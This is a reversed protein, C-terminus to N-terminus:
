KVSSLLIKYIRKLTQSTWPYESFNKAEDEWRQHFLSNMNFLWFSPRYWIVQHIHRTYSKLRNSEELLSQHQHLHLQWAPSQNALRHCELKSIKIGLCYISIKTCQIHNQEFHDWVVSWCFLRATPYRVIINDLFMYHEFFLIAAEWLYARFNHSYLFILGYNWVVGFNTIDSVFSLGKFLGMLLSLSTLLTMCDRGLLNLTLIYVISFVLFVFVSQSSSSIPIRCVNSNFKAWCVSCWFCSLPFFM